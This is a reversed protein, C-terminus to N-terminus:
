PYCNWIIENYCGAFGIMFGSYLNSFNGKREMRADSVHKFCSVPAGIFDGKGLYHGWDFVDAPVYTMM